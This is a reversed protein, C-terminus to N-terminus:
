HTIQTFGLGEIYTKCLRCPCKNPQWKRIEKSFTSLKDIKKIDDPIIAWIRPGIHALSESGWSVTRINSSKFINEHEYKTELKLPFINDM